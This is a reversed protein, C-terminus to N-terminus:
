IHIHCDHCAQKNNQKQITKSNHPFYRVNINKKEKKERRKSKETNNNVM